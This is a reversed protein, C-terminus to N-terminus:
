DQRNRLRQRARQMAREIMARKRRQATKERGAALHEL